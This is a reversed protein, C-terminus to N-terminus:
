GVPTLSRPAAVPEVRRPFLVRRLIKPAFLRQPPHKLNVTEHFALSVVPDTAAARLVRALFANLIRVSVTRKGPVSPLALDGGAAMDWPIDIVQAAREYYRRPLGALPGRACDLLVMAEVAAVTMGQGYVPNFACLADGICLYGEPLRKLREYRRRVSAPIRFRKPETLPRAHDLVAHLDEIPLQRAYDNFGPVDTPPIDDGMGILTLIWRNGEMPLLAAGYPFDATLATIVGASGSPLPQRDYERTSYAVGAKVTDEVPAEYGLATLWTTGRNGRGTADVVLDAALEREVGAHVVRVGTVAGGDAVLGVVEHDGCLEVGPRRAVRARIYDELAPRSLSLLMLDSPVKLLQRTGNYWSVENPLDVVEAGAASLEATLGPFLEELVQRGKNLIAHAHQGQPVGKRAGTDRLDDRDIVMVHEFSESLVRAALLGAMSAGLVVATNKGNM